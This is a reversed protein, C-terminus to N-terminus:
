DETEDIDSSKASRYKMAQVINVFSLVFFSGEWIGFGNSRTSQGVVMPVMDLMRALSGIFLLTATAKYKGAYTRSQANMILQLIEGGIENTLGLAHLIKLSAPAYAHISLLTDHGTSTPVVLPSILYLYALEFYYIIV